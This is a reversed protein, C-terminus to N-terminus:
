EKKGNYHKQVFFTGFAVNSAIVKASNEDNIRNIIQM